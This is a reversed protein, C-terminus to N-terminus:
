LGSSSYHTIEDRLRLRETVEASLKVDNMRVQEIPPGDLSDM